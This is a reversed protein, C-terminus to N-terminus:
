LGAPGAEHRKLQRWASPTAGFQQTFWRTFSAQRAYGLLIAIQGMAYNPNRLYREALQRRVEDVLMSFSLGQQTLQRQLTRVSVHCATAVREVFRAVGRRAPQGEHLRLEPDSRMRGYLAEAAAM